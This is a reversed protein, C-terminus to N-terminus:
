GWWGRNNWWGGARYVYTPPAPYGMDQVPLVNRDHDLMLRMAKAGDRVACDVRSKSLGLRSSLQSRNFGGNQKVYREIAEIDRLVQSENHQPM